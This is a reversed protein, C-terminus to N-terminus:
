RLRHYWLPLSAWGDTAIAREFEAKRYYIGDGASPEWGHPYGGKFSQSWTGAPDNVFYGRADYGTVVVVHGYGTFYGHVIAPSGKDLQARLDALTGNTVATVRQSLGARAALTNFVQALGAPSQAFDKGFEHTVDDPLGRWGFGALVMAISTNQCSAGPFLQNAYQYFYPLRGAAPPPPQQLCRAAPEINFAAVAVAALQARTAPDKPCFAGGACGRMIGHVRAAEIWGAAWDDDPVDSFAGAPPMPEHGSLSVVLAALEARTAKADPCFRDGGCGAILGERHLAEIMSAGWHRAPVDSFVLGTAPKQEIGAVKGLVLAAQARTASEDPCFRSPETSCGTWLRAKAGAEIAPFAWHEGSVDAFIGCGNDIPARAKVEDLPAIPDAPAQGDPPGDLGACGALVASFALIASFALLARVPRSM